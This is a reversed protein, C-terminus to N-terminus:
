EDTVDKAADAGGNEEEKGTRPLTDTIKYLRRFDFHRDIEEFASKLMEGDENAAHIAESLKGYWEKLSPMSGRPPDPITSGYETLIEDGSRKDNIKTVRRAFQEVFTRLFYIAALTRGTKMAIVADRYWKSEPKPIFSPVAVKEIPSRGHISLKWGDRLILFANLQRLCKQCQFQVIFIQSDNNLKVPADEGDPRRNLKRMENTTDQFWIPKFPEVNKCISCFLESNTVVIQLPLEKPGSRNVIYLTRDTILITESAYSEGVIGSFIPAHDKLLRLKMKEIIPKPDIVVSQYLHKSEVLLKFSSALETNLEANVKEIAELADLNAPEM